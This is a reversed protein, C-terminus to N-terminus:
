MSYFRILLQERSFGRIPDPKIDDVATRVLFASDNYLYRIVQDLREYTM